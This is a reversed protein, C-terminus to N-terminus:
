VRLVATLAAESISGCRLVRPPETQLSFVTSATGHVRGGDILLDPRGDLNRVASAATAAATAGSRNASTAALPRALRALLARMLAHDPIRLGISGTNGADACIVTLPGPWFANALARLPADAQVGAGVAMDLDLALMQLKRDPPRQKLEFIRDRGPENDWRTMLGYVTETPAAIVGGRALVAAAAEAAREFDADAQVHLKQM